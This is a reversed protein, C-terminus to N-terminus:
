AEVDYDAFEPLVAEIVFDVLAAPLDLYFERDSYSGVSAELGHAQAWAALGELDARPTDSLFSM